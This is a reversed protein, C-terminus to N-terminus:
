GILAKAIRGQPSFGLGLGSMFKLVIWAGLGWVIWKYKTLNHYKDKYKDAEEKEKAIDVVLTANSERLMAKEKESELSARKARTLESEAHRLTVMQSDLVRGISRLQEAVAEVAADYKNILIEVSDAFPSGAKRMVEVLDRSEVIDQRAHCVTVQAIDVKGKAEASQKKVKKVDMDVVRVDVAPTIPAPIVPKRKLECSLTNIAIICLILIRINM